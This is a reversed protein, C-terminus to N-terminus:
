NIKSYEAVKELLQKESTKIKAIFEAFCSVNQPIHFSFVGLRGGYGHVLRETLTSACSSATPHIIMGNARRMIYMYSLMQHTDDREAISNPLHKYKADFVAGDSHFDPFRIGSDRRIFDTEGHNRVHSYIHVGGTGACNDPHVIGIPALVRALYEEWLRASDFLIGHVRGDGDDYRLGQHHLIMRCLKQLPIYATYYPHSFGRANDKLIRTLSARSYSPTADRIAAVAEATERDSAFIPATFPHSAIHEITHRILQTLSNDEVRSRTSYAVTGRFPLNERIHRPVDLSGRISTDNHSIRRFTRFIGQAFARKLYKPFLYCLFDLTDDQSFSHEPKLMNLELVRMLMYHLFYDEGDNAFRSRISISTNGDGIFGTINGTLITQNPTLTLITDDDKIGVTNEPPFVLYDNDRLFAHAPKGSLLRALSVAPHDQSLGCLDKCPHNINNDTTIVRM